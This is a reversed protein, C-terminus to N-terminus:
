TPEGQPVKIQAARCFLIVVDGISKALALSGSSVGSSAGYEKKLIDKVRYSMVAMREPPIGLDLFLKSKANFRLGRGYQAVLEEITVDDLMVIVSNKADSYTKAM